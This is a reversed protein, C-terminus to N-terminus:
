HFNRGGPLAARSQREAMERRRRYGEDRGGSDSRYPGNKVEDARALAGEGLDHGSALALLPPTFDFFERAILHLVLGERQLEGKVGMLRSGLVVRRNKEFVRPWIIINAISTEDELTAFIVGTATGPRQRVLVLGATQVLRGAPATRLSDAPVFGRSDLMARLFSVPHGKLSLSLSKYDHVVAEGPPM